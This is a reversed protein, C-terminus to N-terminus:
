KRLLFNYDTPRVDINPTPILKMRNGLRRKGNENNLLVDIERGSESKVSRLLKLPRWGGADAGPRCRHCEIQRGRVRGRGENGGELGTILDFCIGAVRFTLRNAPYIGIKALNFVTAGTVDIPYLKKLIFLSKSSYKYMNM